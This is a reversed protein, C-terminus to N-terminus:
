SWESHDPVNVDVVGGEPVEDAGPFYAEASVHRPLDVAHQVTSGTFLHQNFVPDEKFVFFFRHVCSVPGAPM